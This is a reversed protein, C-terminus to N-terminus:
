YVQGRDCFFGESRLAIVLPAVAPVFRPQDVVERWPLCRQHVKSFVGFLVDLLFCALLPLTGVTGIVEPVDVLAATV